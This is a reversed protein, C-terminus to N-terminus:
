PNTGGFIRKWWAAKPAPLEGVSQALRREIDPPVPTHISDHRLLEEVTAFEKASRTTAQQGATQQHQETTLKTHRKM